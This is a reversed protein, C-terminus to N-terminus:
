VKLTGAFHEFKLSSAFYDQATKRKNLSVFKWGNHFDKRFKNESWAWAMGLEGLQLLAAMNVQVLTWMKMLDTFIMCDSHDPVEPM